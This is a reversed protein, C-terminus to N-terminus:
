MPLVSTFPFPLILSIWQVEVERSIHDGPHKDPHGQRDVGIQNPTRNDLVFTYPHITLLYVGFGNGRCHSGRRRGTRRLQKVQCKM